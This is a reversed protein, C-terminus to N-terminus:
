APPALKMSAAIPESPMAVGDFTADTGKRSGRVESKERVPRAAPRTSTSPPPTV